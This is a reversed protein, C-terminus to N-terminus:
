PAAGAQTKAIEVQAAHRGATANEWAKAGYLSGVGTFVAAIFLAGGEFTHVRVAIVVIAISAALSTAVIAFPRALDGLFSKLQELRSPPPVTVVPPTDTM